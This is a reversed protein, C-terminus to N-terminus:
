LSVSRHSVEQHTPTFFSNVQSMPSDKGFPDVIEAQEPLTIESGTSIHPTHKASVFHIKEEGEVITDLPAVHPLEDCSGVSSFLDM